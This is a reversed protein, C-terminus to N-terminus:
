GHMSSKPSHRSKARSLRFRRHGLKLLVAREFAALASINIERIVCGITQTSRFRMSKPSRTRRIASTPL